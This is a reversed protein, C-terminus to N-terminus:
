PFLQIHKTVAHYALIYGAASWAQKKRGMPELTKGHLYEHFEWGQDKLVHAMRELQIRAEEHRGSKVLAKVWFGAIM